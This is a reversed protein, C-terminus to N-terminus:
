RKEKSFAKKLLKLKEKKDAVKSDDKEIAIDIEKKLLNLQAKRLALGQLKFAVVVVGLIAGLTILLYQNLTLKVNALFKLM